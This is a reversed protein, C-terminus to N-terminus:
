DGVLLVILGIAIGLIALATAAIGAAQYTRRSIVWFHESCSRCRYPSRFGPRAYAGDSRTSTRRVDLSGCKPCKRAM